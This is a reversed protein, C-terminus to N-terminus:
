CNPGRALNVIADHTQPGLFSGPGASSKPNGSRGMVGSEHNFSAVILGNCSPSGATPTPTQAPSGLASAGGGLTGALVLACTMLKTGRM